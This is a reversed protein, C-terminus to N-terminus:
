LVSLYRREQHITLGKCKIPAFAKKSDKGKKIRIVERVSAARALDCKLKIYELIIEICQADTIVNIRM